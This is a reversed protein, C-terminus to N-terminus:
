NLFTNKVRNSSKMYMWWAVSIVFLALLGFARGSGVAQQNYFHDFSVDVLAFIFLGSMVLSSFSPYRRSKKGFFYLASFFAALLVLNAFFESAILLLHSPSVRSKIAWLLQYDPILWIHFAFLLLPTVVTM